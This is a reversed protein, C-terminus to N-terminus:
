LRQTAEDNAYDKKGNTHAIPEAEGQLRKKLDALEQFKRKIAKDRQHERTAVTQRMPPPLRVWEAKEAENFSKPPEVKVFTALAASVIATQTPNPLGHHDHALTIADLVSIIQQASHGLADQELVFAAITKPRAPLRRCQKVACWKSFRDFRALVEPTLEVARPQITLEAAVKAEGKDWVAVQERVAIDDALV